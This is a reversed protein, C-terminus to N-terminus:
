PKWTFMWFWRTDEKLLRELDKELDAKSLSGMGFDKLLIGGDLSYVHHPLLHKSFIEDKLALYTIDEKGSAWLQYGKFGIIDLESRSLGRVQKKVINRTRQFDIILFPPEKNAEREHVYALQDRLPLGDEWIPTQGLMDYNATPMQRHLGAHIFGSITPYPCVILVRNGYTREATFKLEPKHMEPRPEPEAM